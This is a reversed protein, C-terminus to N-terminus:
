LMEGKVTSGETKEEEAKCDSWYQPAYDEAKVITDIGEQSASHKGGFVIENEKTTQSTQIKVILACIVVAAFSVFTYLIIAGKNSSSQEEFDGAASSSTTKVQSRVTSCTEGDFNLEIVDGIEECTIQLCVLNRAFANRVEDFDVDDGNTARLTHHIISADDPDCAHIFPLVSAAYAIGEGLHREYDIEKDELFRTRRLAGQIMPITMLRVIEEKNSRTAPCNRELLHKQGAEFNHFVQYNVWAIGDGDDGNEGCTSASLCRTNAVHYLFVGSENSVQSGTYFAVASDWFVLADDPTNDTDFCEDISREMRSIVEMFMTLWVISNEIIARRGAWGFGRFDQNGMQMDTEDAQFARIIIHDAYDYIGYYDVFKSYDVKPCNHCDYLRDRAYLSEKQFSRYNVNGSWVNYSYDLSLQLEPLEATGQEAFCGGFVPDPNAGALCDVYDDQDDRINYLVDLVNDGAKTDDHVIGKVLTFTQDDYVPGIVETGAPIDVELPQNLILEAAPRSYAGEQYVRQAIRFGSERETAVQSQILSLDLDLAAYDTVITKPTYSHISQILNRDSAVAESGLAALSLGVLSRLM